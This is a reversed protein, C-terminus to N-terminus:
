IIDGGLAKELFAYAGLTLGTNAATTDFVLGRVLGKIGWVDLKAICAQAQSEGTGRDIKPVALLQEEGRDTVLIAIRHVLHSGGASGPPDQM